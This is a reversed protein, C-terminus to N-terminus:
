VLLLEMRQKFLNFEKNSPLLSTGNYIGNEISSPRPCQSYTPRHMEHM